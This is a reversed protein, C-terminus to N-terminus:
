FVSSPFNLKGSLNIYQTVEELFAKSTKVNKIRQLLPGTPKKKDDDDDSEDDGLTTQLKPM